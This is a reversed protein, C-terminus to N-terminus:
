KKLRLSKDKNANAYQEGAEWIDRRVAYVEHNDDIPFVIRKRFLGHIDDSWMRFHPIGRRMLTLLAIRESDSLIDLDQIPEIDQKDVSEKRRRETNQKVSAQTKM